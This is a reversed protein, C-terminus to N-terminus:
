IMGGLLVNDVALEMGENSAWIMLKFGRHHDANNDANFSIRLYQNTRKMVRPMMNEVSSCYTGSLHKSFSYLNNYVKVYEETCNPGGGVDFDMAIVTVPTDYKPFSILWNCHTNTPYLSPYLPSTINVNENDNLKIM